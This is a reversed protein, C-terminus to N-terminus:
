NTYKMVNRPLSDASPQDIVKVYHTVFAIFVTFYGLIVAMVSNLTM